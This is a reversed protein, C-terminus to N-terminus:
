HAGGDGARHSAGACLCGAPRGSNAQGAFHGCDAARRYKGASILADGGGEALMRMGVVLSSGPRRKVVSAPDDHMDVVDDANFVEVGAPLTDWGQRKMSDLLDAGRGVLLFEVGYEEAAQLAGLVVADPANDGGMADMIIKM